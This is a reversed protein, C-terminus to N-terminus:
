REKFFAGEESRGIDNQSLRSVISEYNTFVSQANYHTIHFVIFAFSCMNLGSLM